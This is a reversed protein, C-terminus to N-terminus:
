SDDRQAVVGRSRRAWARRSSAQGESSPRPVGALPDASRSCKSARRERSCGQRTARMGTPSVSTPMRSPSCAHKTSPAASSNCGVPLGDSSFGCPLSLAPLGTVNAPYTLRCYAQLPTQEPETQRTRVSQENVGIAPVPTTATAIVDVEELARLFEAVITSRVRQAQVYDTALIMAGLQLNLRTAPTYDSPRERLWRAHTPV